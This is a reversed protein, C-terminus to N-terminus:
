KEASIVGALLTENQTKGWFPRMGDSTEKEYLGKAKELHPRANKPGGGYFEPMNLTFLAQIYAARPNDPNLASATGLLEFIKPSMEQGKTMPDETLKGIFIYAQLVALESRDAPTIARAAVNSLTKQAEDFYQQAQNNDDGMWQFGAILQAYAAYYGPLWENPEAASIRTFTNAAAIFDSPSQAGILEDVGAKVATQYKENQGFATLASFLVIVFNLFLKKM